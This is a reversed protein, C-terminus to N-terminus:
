SSDGDTTREATAEPPTILAEWISHALILEIIDIFLPELKAWSDVTGYIAIYYRIVTALPGDLDM